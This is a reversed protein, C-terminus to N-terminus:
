TATAMFSVTMGEELGIEPAHELASKSRQSPVHGELVNLPGRIGLMVDEHVM